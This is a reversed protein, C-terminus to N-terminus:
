YTWQYAAYYSFRNSLDVNQLARGLSLLLHDHRTLDYIGGVNFGTTDATGLPYGATGPAAITSLTQHFVEVGVMLDEFVQRQLVWGAFWYDSNGAGPNWGYGAGGYTTWRGFDKQIWVPLFAHTSGTGLAKAANGTPALLMPYVGVQPWWDAPDAPLFRYKVGFQTDGYGFATGTAPQSNLAAVATAHLQVNAGAGYNMDIGPAVAATQGRVLTGSSFGYIEWRREGVPEPDDTLFPPGARCPWAPAALVFM